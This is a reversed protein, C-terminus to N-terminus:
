YNIILSLNTAVPQLLALPYQVVAYVNFCGCWVLKKCRADLDTIYHAEGQWTQIHTGHVPLFLLKGTTMFYNLIHVM